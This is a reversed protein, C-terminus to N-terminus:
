ASELHARSQAESLLSSTRTLSGDVIGGAHIEIAKCDVINGLVEGHELIEVSRACHVSGRVQGNLIVYQSRIEGTLAGSKGVVITNNADGIAFVNGVVVGEIRLGGTFMVNGEIRLGAGLLTHIHSQPRFSKDDEVPAPTGGRAELSPLPLTQRFMKAIGSMPALAGDEQRITMM